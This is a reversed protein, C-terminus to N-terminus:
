CYRAFPTYLKRNLKKEYVSHPISVEEDMNDPHHATVPRAVLPPIDSKPVAEAAGGPRQWAPAPVKPVVERWDQDQRIIFSLDKLSRNDEKNLCRIGPLSEDSFMSSNSFALRTM